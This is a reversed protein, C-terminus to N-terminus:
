RGYIYFDFVGNDSVTLGSVRFIFGQDYEWLINSKPTITLLYEGKGNETVSISYWIPSYKTTDFIKFNSVTLGTVNKGSEKLVIIKFNVPNQTGKTVNKSSDLFVKLYEASATKDLFILTFMIFYIVIAKKM